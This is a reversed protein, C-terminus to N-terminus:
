CIMFRCIKVYFLSKRSVLIRRLFHLGFRKKASTLQPLQRRMGCPMAIKEHWIFIAELKEFAFNQLKQLLVKSCGAAFYQEKQPLGVFSSVWQFAGLVFLSVCSFWCFRYWHDTNAINDLANYVNMLCILVLSLMKNCYDKLFQHDTKTALFTITPWCLRM